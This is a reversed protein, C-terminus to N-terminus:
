KQRRHFQVAEAAVAVLALRLLWVLNLRPDSRVVGAALEMSVPSQLWALRPLPHFRVAEVAEELAAV